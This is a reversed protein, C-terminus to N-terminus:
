AVGKQSEAKTGEDCAAPAFIWSFGNSFRHLDMWFQGWISLFDNKPRKPRGLGSQPRMQVREPRSKSAWIGGWLRDQPAGPSGLAALLRGFADGPCGLSAGLAEPAAGLVSVFGNPNGFATPLAQLVIKLRNETM